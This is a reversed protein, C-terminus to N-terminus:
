ICKYIIEFAKNDFYIGFSNLAM